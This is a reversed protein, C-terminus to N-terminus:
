KKEILAQPALVVEENLLQLMDRAIPRHTLYEEPSLRECLTLYTWTVSLAHQAEDWQTQREISLCESGVKRDKPLHSLDLGKPVNVKLSWRWQRKHGLALPFRREELQFSSKPSWDVISPLRLLEGERHVWSDHEFNIHAEAPVYLDDTQVAKHDLM